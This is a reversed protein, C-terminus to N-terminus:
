VSRIIDAVALLYKMAPGLIIVQKKKMRCAFCAGGSAEVANKNKRQAGTRPRKPPPGVDFRM